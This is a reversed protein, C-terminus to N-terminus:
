AVQPERMQTYRTSSVVHRVIRGYQIAKHLGSEYFWAMQETEPEAPANMLSTLWAQVADEQQHYYPISNSKQLLPMEAQVDVHLRPEAESADDPLWLYFPAPYVALLFYVYGPVASHEVLNRRIRTAWQEIEMEHKDPYDKVEVVLQLREDKDYVAIDFRRSLKAGPNEWEGLRVMESLCSRCVTAAVARGPAMWIAMVPAPTLALCGPLRLDCEGIKVIGSPEIRM